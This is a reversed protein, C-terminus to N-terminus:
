SPLEYPKIGYKLVPMSDASRSGYMTSADQLSSLMVPGSGMKHVYLENLTTHAPYVAHVYSMAGGDRRILYLPHESPGTKPDFYNREVPPFSTGSANPLVSLNEGSMLATFALCDIVVIREQLREADSLARHLRDPIEEDQFHLLDGDVRVGDVELRRPPVVGDHIPNGLAFSSLPNDVNTSFEIFRPM